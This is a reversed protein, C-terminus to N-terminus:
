ANFILELAQKRTADAWERHAKDEVAFLNSYAKDACPECCKLTEPPKNQLRVGYWDPLYSKPSMPQLPLIKGCLACRIEGM